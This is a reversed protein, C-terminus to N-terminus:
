YGPNNFDFFTSTNFKGQAALLSTTPFISLTKFWFGSDDITWTPVFSRVFSILRKFLMFFNDGFYFDGLVTNLKELM